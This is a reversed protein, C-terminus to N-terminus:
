LHELLYGYFILHAMLSFVEEDLLLMKDQSSRHCVTLWIGEKKISFLNNSKFRLLIVFCCTFHPINYIISAAILNIYLM